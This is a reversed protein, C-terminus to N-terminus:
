PSPCDTEKPPKTYSKQWSPAHAKKDSVSLFFRNQPSLPTRAANVHFAQTAPHSHKQRDEHPGHRSRPPQSSLKTENAFNIPVKQNLIMPSISKSTTPISRHHARRALHVSTM